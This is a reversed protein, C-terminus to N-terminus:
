HSIWGLLLHPVVPRGVSGIIIQTIKVSLRQCVETIQVRHINLPRFVTPMAFCRRHHIIAWVIGKAAAACTSLFPHLCHDAAYCIPAVLCLSLLGVPTELHYSV